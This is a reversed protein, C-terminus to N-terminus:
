ERILMQNQRQLRYTFAGLLEDKRRDTHCQMCTRENRLSGVIRISNQSIDTIVNEGAEFDQIAKREFSNLERFPTDEPLEPMEQMSADILYVRDLQVSLLHMEVLTLTEDGFRDFVPALYDFGFTPHSKTVAARKPVEVKKARAGLPGWLGYSSKGQERSSTWSQSRSEDNEITDTLFKVAGSDMLVHAGGRHRGQNPATAFNRVTGEHFLNLTQSLSMNSKATLRDVRTQRFDPVHLTFTQTTSAVTQEKFPDQEEGPYDYRIGGGPAIASLFCAAVLGITLCKLRMAIKVSPPCESFHIMCAHTIKLDVNSVSEHYIARSSEQKSLLVAEILTCFFRHRM